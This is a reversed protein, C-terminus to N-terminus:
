RLRSLVSMAAILGLRFHRNGPMQNESSLDSEYEARIADICRQREAKLAFMLDDIKTPEETTV